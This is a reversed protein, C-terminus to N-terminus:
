AGYDQGHVATPVVLIGFGSRYKVPIKALGRNNHVSKFPQDPQLDCYVSMYLKKQTKM